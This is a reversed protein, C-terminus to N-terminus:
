GDRPRISADLTGCGQQCARCASATDSAGQSPSGFLITAHSCKTAMAIEQAAAGPVLGVADREDLQEEVQNEHEGDRLERVGQDLVEGEDGERLGHQEEHPDPPHPDVRGPRGIPNIRLGRRRADRQEHEHQGPQHHRYRDRLREVAAGEAEGAGIRGDLDAAVQEHQPREAPVTGPVVAVELADACPVRQRCCHPNRARQDVAIQPEGNPRARQRDLEDSRGGPEVHGTEAARRDGVPVDFAAVHGLPASQEDDDREAFRDQHHARGEALHRDRRWPPRM